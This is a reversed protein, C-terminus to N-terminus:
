SAEKERDLSSTKLRIFLCYTYAFALSWITCDGDFRCKGPQRQTRFPLRLRNEYHQPEDPTSEEEAVRGRWRGIAEGALIMAETVLLYASSVPQELVSISSADTADEATATKNKAANHSVQVNVAIGIADPANSDPFISVSAYPVPNPVMGESSGNRIRLERRKLAAALLAGLEWEENYAIGEELMEDVEDYTLRYSVRILSPTVVLSSEVISGDDNLEVGLSLACVDHNAKLSMLDTGIISPFMSISGSPLYLSTIRRRAAEFLESHPPAWREADAIHVWIRQRSREHGGAEGHGAIVEVSVGDDIEATSAGDITYVKLHRLDKRLGLIADPDISERGEKVKQVAEAAAQEEQETFRIPFGSRLLALDEHKEWAGLAVLLDFAGQPTKKWRLEALLQLAPTRDLKYKLRRVSDNNWEVLDHHTNHNKNQDDALHQVMRRLQEPAGKVGVQTGMVCLSQLVMVAGRIVDDKEISDTLAATAKVAGWMDAMQEDDECFLRELAEEGAQTCTLDMFRGKVLDKTRQKVADSVVRASPINETEATTHNHLLRHRILNAVLLVVREELEATADDAAFIDDDYTVVKPYWGTAKTATAGRAALQSNLVRRGLPVAYTPSEGHQRQISPIAIFSPAVQFASTFPLTLLTGLLLSLLAVVMPHRRRCHPLSHHNEEIRRDENTGEPFRGPSQFFM